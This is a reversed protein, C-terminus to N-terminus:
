GTEFLFGSKRFPFLIRDSYLRLLEMRKLFHSYPCVKIQRNKEQISMMSSVLRVRRVLVRMRKNKNKSRKTFTSLAMVLRFLIRKLFSSMKKLTDNKFRLPKETLAIM